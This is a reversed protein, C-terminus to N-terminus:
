LKSIMGSINPLDTIVSGESSKMNRNICDVCFQVVSEIMEPHVVYDHRLKELYVCHINNPLKSCSQLRKLDKMHFLPAWQDPCGCFLLSTSCFKGILRLAVDKIAM